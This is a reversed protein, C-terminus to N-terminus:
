NFNFLLNRGAAARIGELGHATLGCSLCSSVSIYLMSKSGEAGVAKSQLDVVQNGNGAFMHM